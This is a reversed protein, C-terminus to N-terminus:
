RITYANKYFHDCDKHWQRATKIWLCFRREVRACNTASWPEDYDFRTLCLDTSRRGRQAWVSETPWFECFEAFTLQWEEGRYHAQSRMRHWAYHRAVDFSRSLRSRKTMSSENLNIEM